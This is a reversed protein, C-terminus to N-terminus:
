CGLWEWVLESVSRDVTGARSTKRSEQRNQHKLHISTVIFCNVYASAGEPLLDLTYDNPINSRRRCLLKSETTSSTHVHLQQSLIHQFLTLNVAVLISASSNMHVFM